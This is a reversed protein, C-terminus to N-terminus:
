QTGTLVISVTFTTLNGANASATLTLTAIVSTNPAVIANQRNWALTLYTNANSPTWSTTTMSLTVPVTGTNKLYITKSTSAGPALTGWDVSSCAQTCGADNYVGINVAAIMGSSTVTQTSSLVGASMVTLFLGTVAIAILVGISITRTTM